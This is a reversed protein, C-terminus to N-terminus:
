ILSDLISGKFRKMVKEELEKLKDDICKHKLANSVPVATDNIVSSKEDNDLNSNSDTVDNPMFINENGSKLENCINNTHNPSKMELNVENEPEMENNELEIQITSPPKISIDDNNIYLKDEKLTEGDCDSATEDNASVNTQDRGDCKKGLYSDENADIIENVNASREDCTDDGFVITDMEYLKDNDNYIDTSSDPDYFLNVESHSNLTNM